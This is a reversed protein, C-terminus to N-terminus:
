SSERIVVKYVARSSQSLMLNFRAIVNWLAVKLLEVGLMVMQKIRM